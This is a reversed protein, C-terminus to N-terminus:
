RPAADGTAQEEFDTIRSETQFKQYDSFQVDIEARLKKLLALRADARVLVASPLWVENNIHAQEVHITGGPAIRLVGLGFSLTDLVKADVKVWRYTTQEIWIRASVRSFMKARSYKARWGPRPQADIVWAPQGSVNETAVMQFTFADPIENLYRRKEAREKEDHARESPSRGQRKALEKDQARQEKAAEKESLANGDREILKQYPRGALILVEHTESESNTLKSNKGYRRVETKERYTYNKSKEFDTWDRDLSRRVIDIAAPQAGLHSAVAFVSLLLFGGYRM